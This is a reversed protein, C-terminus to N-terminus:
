RSQPSLGWRGLLDSPIEIAAGRDPAPRHLIMGQAFRKAVFSRRGRTEPIAPLVKLALRRQFPRLRLLHRTWNPPPLDLVRAVDAGLVTDALFFHTLSLAYGKVPFLTEMGAVLKESLGKGERTSKMQRTGIRAVLGIAETENAPLLSEAIGLLRGVAVWVGVYADAEDQAIQAGLRRLGHLVAVSFTLLTWALYEQNLPTGWAPDWPGGGRELVLRRLLANLLRQKRTTYWGIGEPELQGVQMVDVVMQATDCLSGLADDKLGRARYIAQIGDGSAFALPLAYSGLILFVEPGFLSFLRQGKSVLEIDTSPAKPLSAVYDAVLPNGQPMRGHRDLAAMLVAMAKPGHSRFQEDVLSDVVPDGQNRMHNLWEDSIEAAKPRDGPLASWDQEAKAASSEGLAGVRDLLAGRLLAVDAKEQDTLSLHSALRDLDKVTLGLLDTIARPDNEVERLRQLIEDTIETTVVV